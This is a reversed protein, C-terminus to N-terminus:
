FRLSLNKWNLNPCSTRTLRNKLVPSHGCALETKHAAGPPGFGGTSISLPQFLGERMLEEWARGTLQELVAGALVYGVERARNQVAL